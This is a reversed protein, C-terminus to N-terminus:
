RGRKKATKKAPTRTAKAVSKAAAPPAVVAAPAPAPAEPPALHAYRVVDDCYKTESNPCGPLHLGLPLGHAMSFDTGVSGYNGGADFELELDGECKTANTASDVARVALLARGKSGTVTVKEVKGVLLLRAAGPVPLGYLRKARDAWELPHSLMLSYSNGFSAERQWKNELQAVQLNPKSWSSYPPEPYTYRPFGYYDKAILKQADAPLAGVLGAQAELPTAAFTDRCAELYSTGFPGKLEAQAAVAKKKLEDLARIAKSENSQHMFAFPVCILLYLAVLGPPGFLLVRKLTKNMKKPQIIEVQINGGAAWQEMAEHVGPSDAQVSVADGTHLEFLPAAYKAKKVAKVDALRVSRSMPNQAVRSSVPLDVHAQYAERLKGMRMGERAAGVGAGVLAGVLGFQRAAAQGAVGATESDDLLCILHLADPEVVLYGHARRNGVLWSCRLPIEIKEAM